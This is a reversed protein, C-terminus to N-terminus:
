PIAPMGGVWPEAIPSVVHPWEAYDLVEDSKSSMLIYPSASAVCGLTAKEAALLERPSMRIPSRLGEWKAEDPTDQRGGSTAGM